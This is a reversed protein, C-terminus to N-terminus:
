ISSQYIAQTQVEGLQAAAIGYGTKNPAIAEKKSQPQLVYFLYYSVNATDTVRVGSHISTGIL